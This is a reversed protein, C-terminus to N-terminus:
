VKPAPRGKYLTQQNRTTRKLVELQEKTQKVVVIQTDAAKVEFYRCDLDKHMAKLESKDSLVM